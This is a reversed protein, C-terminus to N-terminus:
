KQWIPTFISKKKTKEELHESQKSMGLMAMETDLPVIRQPIQDMDADSLAPGQFRIVRDPTILMFYSSYDERLKGRPIAWLGVVKKDSRYIYLYNKLLFLNKGNKLLSSKNQSNNKRNWVRNELDSLDSPFRGTKQYFIKIDKQFSDLSERPTIAEIRARARRDKIVEVAIACGVAAFVMFVMFFVSFHYRKYFSFKFSLRSKDAM